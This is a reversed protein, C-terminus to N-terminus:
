GGLMAEVESWRHSGLARQALEVAGQFRPVPVSGRMTHFLAALEKANLAPLLLMLDSQAKAPAREAKFRTLVEALASDEYNPWLVEAQAREEADIHLLYEGTLRTVSRYLEEWRGMDVIAVVEALREDLVHHERSLPAAGDGLNAFLPHIYREENDAHDRLLEVIDRVGAGIEARQTPEDLNARGLQQVFAFLHYRQAKHVLGYLDIRM